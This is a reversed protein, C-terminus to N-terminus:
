APTSRRAILVAAALAPGTVLTNMVGHVAVMSRVGGVYTPIVALVRAGAQEGLAGFEHRWALALTFLLSLLSLWALVFARRRARAEILFTSLAVILAATIGFTGIPKLSSLVDIGFAVLLFSVLTTLVAGQYVLRFRGPSAALTSVAGTVIWGLVNGHLAAYYSFTPDYGLLRLDCTGAVLWVAAIVSFVFPVLSLLNGALERKTSPTNRSPAVNYRAATAIRLLVFLLWAASLWSLRSFLSVCVLALAGVHFAAFRRSIPLLRSTALPGVGLSIMLLFKLLLLETM